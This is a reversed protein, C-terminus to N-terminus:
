EQTTNDSGTILVAGCGATDGTLTVSKDSTRLTSSSKIPTVGHGRMPCSHMDGNVCATKGNVTFSGNATIM